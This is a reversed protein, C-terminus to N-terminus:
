SGNALSPNPHVLKPDEAVPHRMIPTPDLLVRYRASIPFFRLLEEDAVAAHHPECREPVDQDFVSEYIPREVSNPTRDVPQMPCDAGQHGAQIPEM